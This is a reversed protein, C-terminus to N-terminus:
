TCPELPPGCLCKNHFFSYKDLKGLKGGQPIEGCLMNYSVNFGQLNVVKTIQKPISGYIMNHNLDLSLLEAEPFKVKSLDFMLKNRSLDISQTSKSQGFLRLRGWDVQEPGTLNNHSLLLYSDSVKHLLSAPITGTLNNRSIDISYLKPLDGLSSPIFGSLKNFSLDLQELATLNALFSPVSGYVGTWSITLFRLNSLKAIEPPITGYLNPLKHLRVVQLYRLNGIAPPIPGILPNELIAMGTVHGTADCDIGPWDCCPIDSHWPPNSSGFSDRIILLNQKDDENCLAFTTAPILSVSILLLALLSM